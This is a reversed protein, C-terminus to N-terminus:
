RLSCASLQISQLSNSYYFIQELITGRINSMELM